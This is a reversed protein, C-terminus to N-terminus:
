KQIKIEEINRELVVLICACWTRVCEMCMERGKTGLFEEMEKMEEENDKKDDLELEEDDSIIHLQRLEQPGVTSEDVM